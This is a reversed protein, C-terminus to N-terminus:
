VHSILVGESAYIVLAFVFLIAFALYQESFYTNSFSAHRSLFEFLMMDLISVYSTKFTNDLRRKSM